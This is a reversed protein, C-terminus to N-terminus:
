AFPFDPHSIWPTCLVKKFNLLQSSFFCTRRFIRRFNQDCRIILFVSQPFINFQLWTIKLWLKRIPIGIEWLSLFLIFLHLLLPHSCCFGILFRFMLCISLTRNKIGFSKFSFSSIDYFFIFIFINDMFHWLNRFINLKYM